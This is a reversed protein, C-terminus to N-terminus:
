QANQPSESSPDDTKKKILVGETAKKYNYYGPGLVQPNEPPLPKGKVGCNSFTFLLLIAFFIKIVKTKV